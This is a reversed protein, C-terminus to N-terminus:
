KKYGITRKIGGRVLADHISAAAADKIRGTAGISQLAATIGGYKMPLVGGGNAKAELSMAYSALTGKSIGTSGYGLENCITPARERLQSCSLHAVPTYLYIVVGSNITTEM